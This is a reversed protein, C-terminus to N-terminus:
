PELRERIDREQYEAFVEEAISGADYRGMLVGMVVNHHNSLFTHRKLDNVALGVDLLMARPVLHSLISRPDGFAMRRYLANERSLIMKRTRDSKNNSSDSTMSYTNPRVAATASETPGPNSGYYLFITGEETTMPGMQRSPDPRKM